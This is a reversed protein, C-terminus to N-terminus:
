IPLCHYLAFLVICSTIADSKASVAFSLSLPAEREGGKKQPHECTQACLQFHSCKPIGLVGGDTNDQNLNHVQITAQDEISFPSVELVGVAIREPHSEPSITAGDHTLSSRPLKQRGWGRTELPKLPRTARLWTPLLDGFPALALKKRM